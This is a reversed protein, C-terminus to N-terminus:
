QVCKKKIAKTNNLYIYNRYATKAVLFDDGSMGRFIPNLTTYAVLLLDDSQSQSINYISRRYGRTTRIDRRIRRPNAINFRVCVYYQSLSNMLLIYFYLSNNARSVDIKKKEREVRFFFKKMKFNSNKLPLLPSFFFRTLLLSDVRAEGCRTLSQMRIARSDTIFVYGTDLKKKKKEKLRNFIVRHYSVNVLKKSQQSQLKVFCPM